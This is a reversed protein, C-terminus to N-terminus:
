EVMMTLRMLKLFIKQRLHSKAYSEVFAPAHLSEHSQTTEGTKRLRTIERVQRLEGFHTLLEFSTMMETRIKNDLAAPGSPDLHLELVPGKQLLTIVQLNPSCLNPEEKSRVIKRFLRHSPRWEIRADKGFLFLWMRQEYFPKM